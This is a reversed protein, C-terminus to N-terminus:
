LKRRECYIRVDDDTQKRELDTRGHYKVKECFLRFLTSVVHLTINVNYFQCMTSLLISTSFKLAVSVFLVILM